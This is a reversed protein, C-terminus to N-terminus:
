GDISGVHGRISVLVAVCLVVSYSRILLLAGGRILLLAVSDLLLLALGLHLLHAVSHIHMLARYTMFTDACLMLVLLAGNFVLLLARCHILFFASCIVLM